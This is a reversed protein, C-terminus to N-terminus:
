SECTSCVGYPENDWSPTSGALSNGRAMIRAACKSCIYLLGDDEVPLWFGKLHAPPSKTFRPSYQIWGKLEDQLETYTKMKEDETETSTSYVIDFCKLLTFSKIQGEKAM